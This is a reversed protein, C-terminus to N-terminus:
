VPQPGFRNGCSEGPGFLLWLGVCVNVIPVLLLLFLWGSQGLDHFRKAAQLANVSVAGILLPLGVAPVSECLASGVLALPLVCLVRLIYGKRNLRGAVTFWGPCAAPGGASVCAPAQGTAAAPLGAPGAAQNGQAERRLKEELFREAETM